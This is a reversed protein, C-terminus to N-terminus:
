FHIQSADMAAGALVIVPRLPHPPAGGAPPQRDPAQRPLRLLAPPGAPAAAGSHRAGAAQDRAGDIGMRGCAAPACAARHATRRPAGLLAAVHGAGLVEVVAATMVHQWSHYRVSRGRETHNCGPESGPGVPFAINLAWAARQDVFTSSLAIYADVGNFHSPTFLRPRPRPAPAVTFLVAYPRVGPANMYRRDKSRTKGWCRAM